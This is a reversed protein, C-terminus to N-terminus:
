TSFLQVRSLQHAVQYFSVKERKKELISPKTLGQIRSPVVLCERNRTEINKEEEKM